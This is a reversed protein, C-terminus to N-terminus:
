CCCSCSMRSRQHLLLLLVNCLILRGLPLPDSSRSAAPLAPTPPSAAEGARQRLKQQQPQAPRHRGLLGGGGQKPGRM